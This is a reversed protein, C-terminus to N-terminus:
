SFKEGKNRLEQTGFEFHAVAKVGDRERNDERSAISFFGRTTTPM